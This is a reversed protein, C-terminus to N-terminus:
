FELSTKNEVLTCGIISVLPLPMVFGNFNIEEESESNTEKDNMSGKFSRGDDDKLADGGM